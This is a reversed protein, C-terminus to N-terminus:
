KANRNKLRPLKKAKSGVSFVHAADYVPELVDLGNVAAAAAAATSAVKVRVAERCLVIAHRCAFFALTTEYLVSRRLLKQVYKGAWEYRQTGTEGHVTGYTYQM